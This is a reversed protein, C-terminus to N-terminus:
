LVITSSRPTNHARGRYADVGPNETGQVVRSVAGSTPPPPTHTWLPGDTLVLDNYGCGDEDEIRKSEEKSTDPGIVDGSGARQGEGRWGGGGPWRAGRSSSSNALSVPSHPAQTNPKGTERFLFFSSFTISFVFISRSASCYCQQTM